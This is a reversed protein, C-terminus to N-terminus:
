RHAQLHQYRRVLSDVVAHLGARHTAVTPFYEAGPWQLVHALDAESALLPLDRKNLLVTLPLDQLARGIFRLVEELRQLAAVNDDLRAVQSDAVFWADSCLRLQSIDAAVEHRQLPYSVPGFLRRLPSLTIQLPGVSVVPSELCFPVHEWKIGLIRAIVTTRGAGGPGVVAVRRPNM